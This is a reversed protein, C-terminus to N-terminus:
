KSELLEQISRDLWKNWNCVSGHGMLLLCEKTGKLTRPNVKGMICRTLKYSYHQCKSCTRYNKM